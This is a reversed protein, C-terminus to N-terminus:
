LKLDFTFNNDGGKKVEANLRSGAPDKYRAPLLDKPGQSDAKKGAKGTGAVDAGAAEAALYAADPNEASVEPLSATEAQDMKAISVRYKGPVAGDGSQFTTLTFTGAADTIGAAANGEGEPSFSVTAGSVAAGNLTVKGTVKTTDPYNVGDGCGTLLVVFSVGLWLHLHLHLLTSRM